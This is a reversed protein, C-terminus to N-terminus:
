RGSGSRTLISSWSAPCGAAEAAARDAARSEESYLEADYSNEGDSPVPADLYVLRALREPVREAVGTIIM